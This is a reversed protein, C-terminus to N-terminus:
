CQCYKGVKSYLVDLDMPKQIWDVVWPLNEHGEITKNATAIIVKLKEYDKRGSNALTLLFAEGDMEPMMMDLIICSPLQEGSLGELVSIADIGNRALSVTYGEIELATKMLDKIDEDDEVILIRKNNM